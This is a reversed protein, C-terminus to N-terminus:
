ILMKRENIGNPFRQRRWEWQELIRHSQSNLSQLCCRLRVWIDSWITSLIFPHFFGLEVAMSSSSLLDLANHNGNCVQTVTSQLALCTCSWVAILASGLPQSGPSAGSVNVPLLKFPCDHCGLDKGPSQM